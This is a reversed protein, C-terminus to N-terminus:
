ECAIGDNDRDLHAGYGPQGRYLPAAGAARAASCNQYPGQQPQPQAKPQPRAPQARQQPAEDRRRDQDRNSDGASDGCNTLVRRMASKEAATVSVGYKRKVRIQTAVMPCRYAKNSPLWSAADSASKSQNAGASVALLNLPDNAFNRRQAPSWMSAGKQWADSLSVVHDIQVAGSNAGRVFDITRGTYPDNLTGAAVVCNRTGAKMTKATLDRRLIDNRTDCGNHGYQTTVDDTWAQGFQGRDYGTKAGRGKVQLTDLTSLAGATSVAPAADATAALPATILGAAISTAAALTRFRM